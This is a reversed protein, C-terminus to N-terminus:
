KSIHENRCSGRPMWDVMLRVHQRARKKWSSNHQGPQKLHTKRILLSAPLDQELQKQQEGENRISQFQSKRLLWNAADPM